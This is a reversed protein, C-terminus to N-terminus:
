TQIARGLGRHCRTARLRHNAMSQDFGYLATIALHELCISRCGFRSAASRADGHTSADERGLWKLVKLPAGPNAWPEAHSVSIQGGNAFSTELAPGPQRDVVIVEHGAKQLFWASATGIIGALGLTEWARAVLAGLAEDAGQATGAQLSLILTM